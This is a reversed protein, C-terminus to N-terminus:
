PLWPGWFGKWKGLAAACAAGDDTGRHPNFATAEHAAMKATMEAVQLAM